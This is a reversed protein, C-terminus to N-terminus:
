ALRTALPQDLSPTSGWETILGGDQAKNFARTVADQLGNESGPLDINWALVDHSTM